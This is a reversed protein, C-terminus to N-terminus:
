WKFGAKKLRAYIANFLYGHLYSFAEESHQTHEMGAYWLIYSTMHYVEHAIVDIGPCKDANYYLVFEAPQEPHTFQLAQGLVADDDLDAYPIGFRRHVNDVFKERTCYYMCVCLNYVPIQIDWRKFPIAQPKKKPM